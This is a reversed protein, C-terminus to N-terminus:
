KKAYDRDRELERSPLGGRIWGEAAVGEVLNAPNSITAQLSPIMPVNSYKIYSVESSPNLTKRNNALEGQQIQSELVPNSSGRGLFPVTTYPRQYLSIKNKSRTMNTIHLESNIDINCGGIGVQKSGSFNISPQSTAFAVADNMPCAPKYNTLLYNSSAANQVNRQLLDCSDNGIRSLNNFTYNSVYAM